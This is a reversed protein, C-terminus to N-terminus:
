NLYQAARSEDFFPFLCLNSLPLSLSESKKHIAVMIPRDDPHICLLVPTGVLDQPLYGLLPVAREDVEQFLCSPTHSTTFVRKDPPIRPASLFISLFLSRFGFNVM